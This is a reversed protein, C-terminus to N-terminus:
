LEKREEEEAGCECRGSSNMAFLCVEHELKERESKRSASMSGHFALVVFCEQQYRQCLQSQWRCVSPSNLQSSM